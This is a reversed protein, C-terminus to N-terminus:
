SAPDGLIGARRLTEHASERLAGEEDGGRTRDAGRPGQVEIRVGDATIEAVTISSVELGELARRAAELDADSPAWVSVTAPASRDGTSHNFVVNAAVIENPVIILRGDGADLYTYSLTLDDVRGTDGEVTVMDGIRIPQAVALLLGALANGFVHRGAIGAVLALVAGSALLGAALKEIKAFQSLALAAGVLIIAVFVLRRMLRLRTEAARSVPADSVRSAVRGAHALVLRDIAFAIAVAVAMTIAASIEDGHAQWFSQDV